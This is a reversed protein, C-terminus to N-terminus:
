FELRFCLQTNSQFLEFEGKKTFLPLFIKYVLNIWLVEALNRAGKTVM